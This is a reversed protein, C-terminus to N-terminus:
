KGWERQSAGQCVPSLHQCGTKCTSFILFYAVLIYQKYFTDDLFYFWPLPETMNLADKGCPFM